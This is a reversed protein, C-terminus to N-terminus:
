RDKGTNPDDSDLVEADTAPVTSVPERVRLRPSPPISLDM